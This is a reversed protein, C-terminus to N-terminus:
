VRDKEGDEEEMENFGILGWCVRVCVWVWVWVWM